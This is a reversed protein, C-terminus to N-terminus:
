TASAISQLRPFGRRWSAKVELRSAAVTRGKQQM